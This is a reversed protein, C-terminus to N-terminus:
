QEKTFALLQNNAPMAHDQLLGLGAQQALRLITEFDRIGSAPNNTKLWHDFQANSPSTFEGHYKFPGYLCLVGDPKLLSGVHRFFHVVASAPMIHLSNASFMYDVSTLSFHTQTVDFPLASPLNELGAAAIRLNLADVNGLLDSSQWQLWPLKNAFHVAHQGTGGAIELVTGQNKFYNELVKLIPEKNNECAQSFPFNM